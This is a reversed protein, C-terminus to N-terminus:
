RLFFFKKKKETHSYQKIANSHFFCAKKSGKNRLTFTWFIAIQM